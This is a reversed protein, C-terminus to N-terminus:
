RGANSANGTWWCWPRAPRPEPRFSWKWNKAIPPSNTPQGIKGRRGVHAVIPGVGPRYNRGGAHRRNRPASGPRSPRCGQGGFAAFRRTRVSRGAREVVTWATPKRPSARLNRAVKLSLNNGALQGDKPMPLPLALAAAQRATTEGVPVSYQLVLECAGVARAPCCWACRYRCWRTM